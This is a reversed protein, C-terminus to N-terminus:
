SRNITLPRILKFNFENLKHIQKIHNILDTTSCAIIRITENKAVAKIIKDRM